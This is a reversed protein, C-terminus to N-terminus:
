PIDNGPEASQLRSITQGSRLPKGHSRIIAMEQASQSKTRTQKGRGLSSATKAKDQKREQQRGSISKSSRTLGIAAQHIWEKLQRKSRQLLHQKTLWNRYHKMKIIARLCVCSTSISSSLGEMFPGKLVYRDYVQLCRYAKILQADAIQLPPVNTPQISCM